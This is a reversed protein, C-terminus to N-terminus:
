RETIKINLQIYAKIMQEWEFRTIICRQLTDTRFARKYQRWEAQCGGGCLYRAWCDRCERRDEVFQSRNCERVDKGIGNIVDGLVVNMPLMNQCPYYCGIEDVTMSGRGADCAHTRVIHHKLINLKENFDMSYVKEGRLLKGVLFDTVEAYQEELRILSSQSFTTERKDKTSTSITFAYAYPTEMNEFFRFVDMLNQVKPSITARLNFRVQAKRLAEIGAMIKKFSGSGNLLVRNEDNIKEPGDISVTVGFDHEKFMRLLEEDNLLLGNTNILFGYTKDKKDKFIEQVIAIVDKIFKKHLLPEGGFFYIIYRQAQPYLVLLNEISKRAVKASMVMKREEDTSAFCYRCAMNCGHTINLTLMVQNHYEDSPERVPVSDRLAILEKTLEEAEARKSRRIKGNGSAAMFYDSLLPTTIEMVQQSGNLFVYDKNGVQLLKFDKATIM